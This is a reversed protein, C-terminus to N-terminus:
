EYQYFESLQDIFDCLNNCENQDACLLKINNAEKFSSFYSKHEKLWNIMQRFSFVKRYIGCNELYWKDPINWLLSELMFSSVKSAAKKYSFIDSDEMLHRMKKIIRVFKKYYKNTAVNKQRGNSIHQEPYNIIREGKDSVIIIGGIYNNADKRYDKRYDRYRLCPVTDADKRYTNGHVKISKDKREVDKGFKQVLCEQVEDKFSKISPKAPIFGYDANSQTPYGTRYEPDFVDEQIVAIDVDSETRVNTNNAYSGQVLLKIKRGYSDNRMRISYAYTDSYLPAIEKGDDTFGIQKLAESVMRITHLCQQNETESLPQSFNELMTETFKM